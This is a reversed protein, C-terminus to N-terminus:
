FKSLRAILQQTLDIENENQIYLILALNWTKTGIAKLSFKGYNTRHYDM